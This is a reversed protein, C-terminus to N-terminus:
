RNNTVLVSNSTSFYIHMNKKGFNTIKDTSSSFICNTRNNLEVIHLCILANIYFNM